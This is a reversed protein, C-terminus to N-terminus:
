QATLACGTGRTLACHTLTCGTGHTLAWHTLRGLGHICSEWKWVDSGVEEGYAEAGQGVILTHESEMVSRALSIPNRVQPHTYIHTCAHTYVHASIHTLPNCM